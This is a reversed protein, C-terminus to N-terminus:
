GAPTLQVLRSSSRDGALVWLSGGDVIASAAQSVSTSRVRASGPDVRTVAGNSVVWVSGAGLTVDLPPQALGIADGASLTTADVHEVVSRNNDVAWAGTADAAAAVYGYDYDAANASTSAVKGTAADLRTLTGDATNVVWVAGSGASLHLPGAGTRVSRAIRRQTADVEVLVGPQKSGTSTLVWVTRGSVAAAVPAAGVPISAIVRNTAPDIQAVANSAPQTAWVTQGDSAVATAGGATSSGVPITAVVRLSREDVRVVAASSADPIWISGFAAALNPADKPDGRLVVDLPGTATVRGAAAIQTQGPAGSEHTGRLSVGLAIAAAGTAANLALLGVVVRHTRLWRLREGGGAATPLLLRRRPTNRADAAAANLRGHLWEDFADMEDDM